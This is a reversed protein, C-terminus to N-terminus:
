NLLTYPSQIPLFATAYFQPNYQSASGSSNTQTVSSSTSAPTSSSIRQCSPCIIIAASSASADYLLSSPSSDLPTKLAKLDRIEKKLRRNEETIAESYKKMMEIEVETQKVKTRARRNQFWVEIQRPQLNLRQALGQKQNPNLTSHQKFSEELVFSQDKCLRLKKRPGLYDRDDDGHDHDHDHDHDTSSSIIINKSNEDEVVAVDSRARKGTCTSNSFSSLVSLSSAQRNLESSSLGLTLSHDFNKTHLHHDHEQNKHTTTVYYSALGLSLGTNCIEEVGM